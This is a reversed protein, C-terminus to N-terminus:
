IKKKTLRLGMPGELSGDDLRRLIQNGHPSIIKVRKGDVEYKLETEMGMVSVYVQGRSEFKYQMAGQADSYTGKVSSSCGTLLLTTSVALAFRM